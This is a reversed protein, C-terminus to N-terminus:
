RGTATTVPDVYYARGKQYNVGLIDSYMWSQSGAQSIIDAYSSTSTAQTSFPTTVTREDFTYRSLLDFYSGSNQTTIGFPNASVVSISSGPIQAKVPAVILILVCFSALVMVAARALCREKLM